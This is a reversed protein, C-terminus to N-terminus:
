SRSERGLHHALLATGVAVVLLFLGCAVGVAFDGRRLELSITSALTRTRMAFNGGVIM